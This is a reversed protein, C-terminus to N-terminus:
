AAPQLPPRMTKKDHEHACWVHLSCGRWYCLRLYNPTLAVVPTRTSHSTCTTTLYDKGDHKHQEGCVSPWRSVPHGSDKGAFQQTVSLNVEFLVLQASITLEEHGLSLDVTAGQRSRSTIWCVALNLLSNSGTNSDTPPTPYPHKQLSSSVKKICNSRTNRHTWHRWLAQDGIPRLLTCCLSDIRL